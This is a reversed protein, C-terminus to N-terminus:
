SNILTPVIAYEFESAVAKSVHSYIEGSVKYFMQM